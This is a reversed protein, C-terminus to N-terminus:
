KVKCKMRFLRPDNIMNKDVVLRVRSIKMVNRTIFRVSDDSDNAEGMDALTNVFDCTRSREARKEQQTKIFVGDRTMQELRKEIEEEPLGEKELNKRTENKRKSFFSLFHFFTFSNVSTSIVFKFDFDFFLVCRYSYLWTQRLISVPQLAECLWVWLLGM